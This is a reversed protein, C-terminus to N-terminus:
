SFVSRVEAPFAPKSPVLLSRQVVKRHNVARLAQIVFATILVGPLAYTLVTAAFLLITGHVREVLSFIQQKPFLDNRLDTFPEAGRPTDIACSALFFDYCQSKRGVSEDIVGINISMSLGCVAPLAGIFTHAFLRRLSRPGSSWAEERAGLFLLLACAVCAGISGM